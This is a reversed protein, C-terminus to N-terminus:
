CYKYIQKQCFEDLQTALRNDDSTTMVADWAETTGQSSSFGLNLIGKALADHTVFARLGRRDTVQKFRELIGKDTRAQLNSVAAAEKAGMQFARALASANEWDQFSSM